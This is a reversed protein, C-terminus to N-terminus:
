VPSKDDFNNGNNMFTDRSGVAMPPSGEEGGVYSVHTEATSVRRTQVSKKKDVKKPRGFFSDTDTPDMHDQDGSDSPDPGNDLDKKVVPLPQSHRGEHLEEGSQDVVINM